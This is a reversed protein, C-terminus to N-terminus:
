AMLRATTAASPTDQRADFPALLPHGNKAHRLLFQKLRRNAPIVYRSPAADMQPSLDPFLTALEALQDPDLTKLTEQGLYLSEAPAGDANLVEHEDLLIHHYSIQRVSRDIFVGQHGTLRVAPVLILDDGFMRGAIKSQVMIRHQRSVLLDASPLRPGLANAPIRVPYLAERGEPPAQDIDVDARGIWRIPKDGNDRTIVLDGPRLLEVAVLGTPTEIGTSGAFCTVSSWTFGTTWNQWGGLGTISSGSDFNSGPLPVFIFNSGTYFLLLDETHPTGGSDNFNLRYTGARPNTYTSGGITITETFDNTFYPSLNPDDDTITVPSLNTVGFGAWVWGSVNYTAM